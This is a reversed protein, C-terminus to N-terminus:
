GTAVPTLLYHCTEGMRFLTVGNFVTGAKKGSQLRELDLQASDTWHRSLDHSGPPLFQGLPLFMRPFSLSLYVDM